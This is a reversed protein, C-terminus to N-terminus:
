PSSRKHGKLCGSRRAATRASAQESTLDTFRSGYPDYCANIEACLAAAKAPSRAASLDKQKAKDVMAHEKDTSKVACNKVGRDIL